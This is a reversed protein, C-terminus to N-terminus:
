FHVRGAIGLPKAQRLKPSLNAKVGYILTKRASRCDLLRPWIPLQSGHYVASKIIELTPFDVQFKIAKSGKYMFFTKLSLNRSLDKEWTLNSVIQWYAAFSSFICIALLTYIVDNACLEIISMISNFFTVWKEFTMKRSIQSFIINNQPTWWKM